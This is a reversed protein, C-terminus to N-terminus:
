VTIGKVQNRDIFILVFQNHKHISFLINIHLFEFACKYQKLLILSGGWNKMIIVFSNPDSAFWPYFVSKPWVCALVFCVHLTRILLRHCQQMVEWSHKLLERHWPVSCLLKVGSLKSAHSMQIPLLSCGLEENGRHWGQALCNSQDFSSGNIGVKVCYTANREESMFKKYCVFCEFLVGSKKTIGIRGCIARCLTLPPCAAAASILEAWDYNPIKTQKKLSM